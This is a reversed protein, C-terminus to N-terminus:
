WFGIDCKDIYLNGNVGTYVNGGTYTNGNIATITKINDYCSSCQSFVADNKLFQACESDPPTNYSSTYFFDNPNYALTVISM